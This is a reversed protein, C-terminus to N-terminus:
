ENTGLCGWTELLWLSAPDQLSDAEGGRPEKTGCGRGCGWVRVRVRSVVPTRTAMQQGGAPLDPRRPAPAAGPPASAASGAGTCAGGAHPSRLLGLGGVEGTAVAWTERGGAAPGEEGARGSQEGGRPRAPRWLSVPGRPRVAARARGAAAAAGPREAGTGAGSPVGRGRGTRRRPTERGPGPRRRKEERLRRAPRGGGQVRGAGSPEGRGAWGGPARVCPRRDRARRGRVGSTLYPQPLEAGPRTDLYRWDPKRRKKREKKAAM